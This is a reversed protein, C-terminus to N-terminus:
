AYLKTLFTAQKGDAKKGRGRKPPSRTLGAQAAVWPDVEDPPSMTNFDNSLPAPPAGTRAFTNADYVPMRPTFFDHPDQKEPEQVNSSQYGYDYSASKQHKNLVSSLGASAM